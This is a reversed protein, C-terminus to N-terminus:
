EINQELPLEVITVAEYGDATKRIATRRATSGRLTNEEKTQESNLIKALEARGKLESKDVAIQMDRSSEATVVYIKSGNRFVKDVNDWLWDNDISELDVIESTIEEARKVAIERKQEKEQQIQDAFVEQYIKSVGNRFDSDSGGNDVVYGAWDWARQQFDNLQEDTINEGFKISIKEMLDNVDMEYGKITAARQEKDDVVTTEPRASEASQASAKSMMGGTMSLGATLIAAKVFGRVGPMKSFVGGGKQGGEKDKGGNDIREVIEEALEELPLENPKKIGLEYAAVLQDGKLDAKESLDDLPPLDKKEEPRDSLTEISPQETGPTPIKEM